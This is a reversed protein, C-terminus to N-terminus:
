ARSLCIDIIAAAATNFQVLVGGAPSNCEPKCPLPATALAGGHAFHIEDLSFSYMRFHECGPSIEDDETNSRGLVEETPAAVWWGDEDFRILAEHITAATNSVVIPRAEAESSLLSDGRSCEDEDLRILAEHVTAATNSVVIPLAEAESSLLSDGRNCEEPMCEQEPEESDTPYYSTCVECQQHLAHRGGAAEELYHQHLIRKQCSVYELEEALRDSIERLKKERHIMCEVANWTVREKSERELCAGMAAVATSSAVLLV